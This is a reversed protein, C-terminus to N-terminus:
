QLCRLRRETVPAMRIDLRIEGLGKMVLDIFPQHAAAIAVIRVSRKLLLPQLRCGILVRYAHLAMRLGGAWENEFMWRHLGLTAGGAVERMSRGIRAQQRPTIHIREAQLAM